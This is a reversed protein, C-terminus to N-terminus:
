LGELSDGDAGFDDFAVAGLDDLVALCFPVDDDGVVGRWHNEREPFAVDVSQFVVLRVAERVDHYSEKRLSRADTKGFGVGGDFFDGVNSVDLVVVGVGVVEDMFVPAYGLSVVVCDHVRRADNGDVAEGLVM